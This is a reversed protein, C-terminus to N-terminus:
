ARQRRGTRSSPGKTARAPPDNQQEDAHREYRIGTFFLITAGNAADRIADDALRAGPKAGQRPRFRILEGM